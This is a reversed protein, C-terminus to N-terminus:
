HEQYTSYKLERPSFSLLPRNNKKLSLRCGFGTVPASGRGNIVSLPMQQSLESRVGVGGKSRSCFAPFVRAFLSICVVRTPM